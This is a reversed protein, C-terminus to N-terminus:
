TNKCLWIAALVVDAPDRSGSLFRDKALVMEPWNVMFSGDSQMEFIKADPPFVGEERPRTPDFIALPAKDIDM